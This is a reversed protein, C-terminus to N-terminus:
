PHTRYQLRQVKHTSTAILLAHPANQQSPVHASVNSEAARIQCEAANASQETAHAMSGGVSLDLLRIKWLSLIYLISAACLAARLNSYMYIHIYIHSHGNLKSKTSISIKAHLAPPELSHQGQAHRGQGKQGKHKAGGPTRM